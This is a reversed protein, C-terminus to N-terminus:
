VSLVPHPYRRSHVHLQVCMKACGDAEAREDGLRRRVPAKNRTILIQFIEQLYIHTSIRYERLISRISPYSDLFISHTRSHQGM